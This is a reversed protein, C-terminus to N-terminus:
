GDRTAISSMVKLCPRQTQWGESSMGDQAVHTRRPALDDQAHISAGPAPNGCPNARRTRLLPEDAELHDISELFERGVRLTTGM